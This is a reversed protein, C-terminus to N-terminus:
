EMTIKTIPNCGRNLGRELAFIGAFPEGDSVVAFCLVSSTFPCHPFSAVPTFSSHKLLHARVRTHITTFIRDLWKM